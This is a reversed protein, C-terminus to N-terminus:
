KPVKSNLYAYTKRDIIKKAFYRFYKMEQVIANIFKLISNQCKNCTVVVRSRAFYHGNQCNLMPISSLIIVHEFKAM